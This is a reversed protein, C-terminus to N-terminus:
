CNNSTGKQFATMLVFTLSFEVASTSCVVPTTNNTAVTFYVEEVWCRYQLRRAAVFLVCLKKKHYLSSKIILIKFHPLFYESVKSTSIGCLSIVTFTM